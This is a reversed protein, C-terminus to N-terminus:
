RNESPSEDSDLGLVTEEASETSEEELDADFDDAFPSEGTTAVAQLKWYTEGGGPNELVITDGDVDVFRGYYGSATMVWTGPELDERLHREREAQQALVNKRGRSSALMLLPLAVLMLLLLPNSM